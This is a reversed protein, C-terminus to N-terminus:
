VATSNDRSGAEAQQESLKWILLRAIGICLPILAVSAVNWGVLMGLFLFLGSGIGSLILGRQLNNGSVSSGDFTALVEAPVDKDANIFKEVLANRQRRKHYSFLLLLTIVLVPSGFTFLIVFIPVIVSSLGGFSFSDPITINIGEQFSRLADKVEQRQEQDLDKWEAKLEGIVEDVIFAVESDFEDHADTHSESESASGIDGPTIIVTVENIDKALAPATSGLALLLTCVMLSNKIFHNKM